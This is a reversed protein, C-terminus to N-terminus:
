EPDSAGHWIGAVSLLCIRRAAPGSLVTGGRDM